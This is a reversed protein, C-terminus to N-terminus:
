WLLIHMSDSPCERNVSWFGLCALKFYDLIDYIIDYIVYIIMYIMYSIMSIDIM